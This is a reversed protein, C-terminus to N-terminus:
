SHSGVEIAPSPLAPYTRLFWAQSVAVGEEMAQRGLTPYAWLLRPLQVGRGCTAEGVRPSRLDWAM